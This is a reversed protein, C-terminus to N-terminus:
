GWLQLVFGSLTHHFFGLMANWIAFRERSGPLSPPLCSLRVLGELSHRAGAGARYSFFGM